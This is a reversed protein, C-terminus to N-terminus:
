GALLTLGALIHITALMALGIEIALEVNKPFGTTFVDFFLLFFAAASITGLMLLIGGFALGFRKLISLFYIKEAVRQVEKAQEVIDNVVESEEAPAEGNRKGRALLEDIEEGHKSNAGPEGEARRSLEQM